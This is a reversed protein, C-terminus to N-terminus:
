GFTVTRYLSRLYAQENPKTFQAFFFLRFPTLVKSVVVVNLSYTGLTGCCNEHTAMTAAGAQAKDLVFVINQLEYKPKPSLLSIIASADRRRSYLELGSSLVKAM